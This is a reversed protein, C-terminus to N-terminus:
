FTINLNIGYSRITPTQLGSTTTIGTGTSASPLTRGPYQDIDLDKFNKNFFYLLNRGVLSINVSGFPLGKLNEKPINYGIVVERLKAYTRSVITHEPDAYLSEVFDQIFPTATKAPGFQLASLNTILGTSPDFTPKVGNTIQVGGAQLTPTGDSNYAGKYSPNAFNDSEYRRAQGIIGSATGAGRGGQYLKQAVYDRIKGGVQGDFQFSLLFGKYTFKNNIGWSFDPDTNGLYQSKAYFIPFGSADYVQQGTPSHFEKSAYAGDVRDGQHYYTNYTGNASPPISKYITKYTGVNVLVDWNLGKKSSVPTGTLSIEGGNTKTILANSVIATLGSAESIQNGNIKPGDNNNFYTLSIGLRNKLFRADLGFETNKRDAPKLAPDIATTPIQAGQANSYTNFTNYVPQTPAPNSAAFNPGGYNSQYDQGYGVVSGFNGAPAAGITAITGSSRVDAFSGRLKLYSIANGFDLYDSLVTTASVSPYFYTQNQLASSKEIRGTTQINFFKKYSLDVSYYGSLVLMNALYNFARVPLLSNQFNYVSPVILQNTSEFTSTYHFTRLTGGVLGSINFGSHLIDGHFKLLADTYNDFLDRHDERYNGHNHEDGYPHASWPEKETRLLNYTSISSRIEADFVNSIQYQASAHAQLDNKYHGRLWEYSMFWPNQYRKYEVFLSQTGIKGPQWYNRVQDINWDAGTWIDVDYIISNPGYQVDPINPTFQRNYNIAGEVKLKKGINIGGNVNFNLTNITTNPVIGQQFQNSVSIRLNSNDNGTSININNTSLLGAQIFGNLNNVGRAVWPTPAINGVFTVPSSAGGYINGNGDKFTTTYTQGTASVAGDYQPLLRGDLRPGWVDYDADNVGGGNGDGFAYADNDGGGYENQVKAIAIFGKDVQFSSNLEVTFPKTGKKGHKTTIMIAGNLGASGYLASAAPGKLVTYTEIDDPSINYTDSNIPIGDVVYLTVADGRLIVSPQGLLEQTVGVNLGSVKGALANLPNPERAKLLDSGKVEQISYGIRKVEKRVGLATVVVENLLRNNAAVQITINKEEGLTAEITTIGVGSVVLVDGKNATIEFGGDANTLTGRKTGKVTVSAGPVTSQDVTSVVRGSYRGVQAMSFFPLLLLGLILSMLKTQKQNM